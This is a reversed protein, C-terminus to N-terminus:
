WYTSDTNHTPSLHSAQVHLTLLNCTALPCAELSTGGLRGPSAPVAPIVKKGFFAWCIAQGLSPPSWGWGKGWAQVDGIVAVHYM